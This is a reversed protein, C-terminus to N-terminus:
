LPREIDCVAACITGIDEDTTSHYNEVTTAYDTHGMIVMAVEPDVRKRRLIDSYTHRCSYPVRGSIGLESMAKNFCRHRWNDLRYQQGTPTAILPGSTRGDILAEVLPYLLPPLPIIRRLGTRTKSGTQLYRSVGDFHLHKEIRVGLMESPRMGTYCLVLIAMANKDGKDAAQWIDSLEATSFPVPSESDDRPLQVLQAYNVSMGNIGMAEKCLNSCLNRIKCATSRKMGGRILEDIPVQFTMKNVDCLKVDAYLALHKWASRHSSQASASLGAFYHSKIFQEYMDKLTLKSVESEKIYISKALAEAAEKYTAFCGLSRREAKGNAYVVPLRAWYPNRRNPLKTISGQAQPRKAHRRQIATTHQKRGCVHCYLAAETALEAHCHRCDM